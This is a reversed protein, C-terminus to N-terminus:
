PTNRVFSAELFFCTLVAADSHASRDMEAKKGGKIASEFTIEPANLSAMRRPDSHGSFIVLATRTPLSAYLTALHDNLTAQAAALSEPLVETPQPQTAAGVPADAM